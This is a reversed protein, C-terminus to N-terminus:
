KGQQSGNNKRTEEMSSVSVGIWGEKLDRRGLSGGHESVVVVVIRDGQISEGGLERM